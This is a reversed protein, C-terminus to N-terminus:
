KKYSNLIDNWNKRKEDKDMNKFPNDPIVKKGTGSESPKLNTKTGSGIDDVLNRLTLVDVNGYKERKDEPLKELLRNKEDTVYSNFSNELEDYKSKMTNGKEREETLLTEFKGNEELTKARAQEEADSKSKVLDRLENREKIVENLRHIPVSQEKKDDQSVQSNSVGSEQAEIKVNEEM